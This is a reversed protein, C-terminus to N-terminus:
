GYTVTHYVAPIERRGNVAGALPMEGFARGDRERFAEACLLISRIVILPSLM